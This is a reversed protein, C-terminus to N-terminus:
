LSFSFSDGHGPYVRWSFDCFERLRALSNQLCIKNSGPLKVPVKTELLTDGSFIIRLWYACGGRHM